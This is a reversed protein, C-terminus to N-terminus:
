KGDVKSESLKELLQLNDYLVFSEIHKMDIYATGGSRLSFELLGDPEPEVFKGEFVDGSTTRVRTLGNLQVSKQVIEYAWM